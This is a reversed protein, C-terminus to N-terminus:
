IVRKEDLLEINKIKWNNEVIGFSIIAKNFNRRYHTHGFHSVSGGVLWAVEIYFDGQQNSRIDGLEQIELESVKARAGGRDELEMAQRNQLYIETLQAGEVSTALRDYVEEENRVDFSRYVNTLLGELIETTRDNSPRWDSVIPIHMAFRVFPYILFGALLLAVTFVQKKKQSSLGVLLAMLFLIMSVLPVLPLKYSVEAIAPVMYGSLQKKWSLNNDEKSLLSVGGGFPDIITTEINIDEEPFVGWILELEEALKNTEYILTIGIIGQDLSEPQPEERILVGASSLTVFDARSMVPSVVQQDITFDNYESLVELMRHKIPDLSQVPIGYMGSDDIGLIQVATRANVLIEQRIEYPEISVYNMIPTSLSRAGPQTRGSSGAPQSAPLAYQTTNSSIGAHILETNGNTVVESFLLITLCVALSGPIYRLYKPEPLKTMVLPLVLLCVLYIMDIALCFAWQAMIKQGGQLDTAAIEQGVGLGHLVGFLLFVPGFRQIAHSQNTFTVMLLAVSLGVIEIFLLDLGPISLDSLILAIGHGLALWLLLKVVERGPILLVMALIILLHIGYFGTHILGKHFYEILVELDSKQNKILRSMTIHIGDISRIYLEKSISGDLWQVTLDAGNRLWPLLIEDDRELGGSRSVARARVVIWGQNDQYELDEVLFRDPFIPAKIAWILQQSVDAELLYSSDSLQILRVKTIGPDDAFASVSIFVSLLCAVLSKGIM